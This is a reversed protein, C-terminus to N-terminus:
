DINMVTNLASQAKENHSYQRTVRVEFELIYTFFKILNTRLNESFKSDGQLYVRETKSYRLILSEIEELGDTVTTRQKSDNGLLQFRGEDISYKLYNGALFTPIVEFPGMSVSVLLCVGAWPLSAYLPAMPALSDGLPKIALIGAIVRDFQKRVEISKEGFDITVPNKEASKRAIYNQLQKEREIGDGHDSGVSTIEPEALLLEEFKKILTPEKSKM